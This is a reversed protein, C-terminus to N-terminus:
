EYCSTDSHFVTSCLEKNAFVEGAGDGVLLMKYVNIM